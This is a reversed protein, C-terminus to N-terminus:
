PWSSCPSRAWPSPPGGGAVPIALPVRSWSPDVGFVVATLTLTVLMTLVASAIPFLFLSLISAVPRVPSVRMREFTGGVLEQRVPSRSTSTSQLVQLIIV